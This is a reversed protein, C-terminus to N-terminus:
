TSNFRDFVKLTGVGGCSPCKSLVGFWSKKCSVCYTMKREYTFFDTGSQIIRETLSLLEEPKHEVEGLEVVSLGGGSWPERLKENVVFDSQVGGEQFALRNVVSYYPRERTGSVHVKAIGYRDLDLQALRQSAESDPMAASSVHKGRKRSVKRTFDNIAQVMEEAFDTKKEKTSATKENYSEVAERFGPFSVVWSCNELRIYQDGNTEQMLFPLLAQGRHKLARFKIELARTAMELRERLM